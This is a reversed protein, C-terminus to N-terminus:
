RVVGYPTYTENVFQAHRERFEFQIGGTGQSSGSAVDCETYELGHPLHILARHEEGTVPNKIPEIRTDVVGAVGLRGQRRERDFAFEIPAFVPDLIKSCMSTYISIMTAGPETEEGRTIALLGERQKESAREDIIALWTGNGEHIPGPWHFTTAWRLGDLSVNAFHGVEIEM